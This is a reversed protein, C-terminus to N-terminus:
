NKFPKPVIIYIFKFHWRSISIIEFGVDKVINEIDRNWTCGWSGEHQETGNDIIQNIWNYLGKVHELLLIM